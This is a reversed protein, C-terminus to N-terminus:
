NVQPLGRTTTPHYELQGPIHNHADPDKAMDYVTHIDVLIYVVPTPLLFELDPVDM